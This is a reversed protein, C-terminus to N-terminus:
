LAAQKAEASLFAAFLDADTPKLGLYAVRIHQGFVWVQGLRYTVPVPGATIQPPDDLAAAMDQVPVDPLVDFERAAADIRRLQGAWPGGVFLYNRWDRAPETATM